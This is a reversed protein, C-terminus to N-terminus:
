VLQPAHEVLNRKMQEMRRLACPCREKVDPGCLAMVRNPFDVHSATPVVSRVTDNKLRQLM